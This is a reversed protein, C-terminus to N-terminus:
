LLNPVDCQGYYNYGWCVVGSDTLAMSHYAGAAIQSVHTEFDPVDCQGYKNDGWCVVGSETLAM